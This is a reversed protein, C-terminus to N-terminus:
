LRGEENRLVPACTWPDIELIEPQGGEATLRVRFPTCTGDRYFTVKALVSTEILRGGVMITEGGGAVGLFEIEMRKTSPLPIARTAVVTSAVFHQEDNDFSLGIDVERHLAQKRAEGVAYWFVDVPSEGRNNIAASAGVLLVVALLGIMGIVVMIEVMTFGALPGAGPSSRRTPM